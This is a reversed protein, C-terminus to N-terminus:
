SCLRLVQFPFSQDRSVFNQKSNLAQSHFCLFHGFKCFFQFSALIAQRSFDQPLFDDLHPQGRNHIVFQCVLHVTLILQLFDM